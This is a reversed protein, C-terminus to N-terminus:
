FCISGLDFLATPKLSQKSRSLVTADFFVVQRIKAIRIYEMFGTKPPMAVLRYDLVTRQWGGATALPSLVPSTIWIIIAFHTLFGLNEIMKKQKDLRFHIFFLTPM